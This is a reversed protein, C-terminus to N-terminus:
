ALKRFVIFGGIVGVVLGAIVFGVWLGTIKPGSSKVKTKTSRHDVNLSGARARLVVQKTDYRARFALGSADIISSLRGIVTDLSSEKLPNEVPGTRPPADLLTFTVLIG